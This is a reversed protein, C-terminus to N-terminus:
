TKGEKPLLRAMAAAHDARETALCDCCLAEDDFHDGCKCTPLARRFSAELLKGKDERLAANEAALSELTAAARTFIDADDLSRTMVAALKLRAIAMPLEEATFPNAPM